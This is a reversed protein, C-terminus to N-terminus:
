HKRIFRMFVIASLIGVELLIIVLLLCKNTMLTMNISRIIRHSKRLNQNADTLRSRTRLLAERQGGLEDTVATGIEETERAVIEARNLAQGTRELTEIGEALVASATMPVSTYAARGFASQGAGGGGGFAPRRVTTCFAKWENTVAFMHQNM